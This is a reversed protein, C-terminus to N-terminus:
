VVDMEIMMVVANMRRSQGRSIFSGRLPLLVGDVDILAACDGLMDEKRTLGLKIRGM